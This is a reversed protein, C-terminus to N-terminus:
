ALPKAFQVEHSVSHQQGEPSGAEPPISRYEYSIDLIGTM